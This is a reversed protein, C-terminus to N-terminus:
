VRKKIEDVSEKIDKLRANIVKIYGDLKQDLNDIKTNNLEERVECLEKTMLTEKDGKSIRLVAFNTFLAALAVGWPLVQSVQEM